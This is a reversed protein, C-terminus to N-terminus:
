RAPAMGGAEAVAVLGQRDGSRDFSVRGTLGLHSGAAVAARVSERATGGREIANLLTTAADYAYAGVAAPTDAYQDRYAEEYDARLGAAGQGLTVFITGELEAGASAVFRRDVLGLGTALLGKFGARRLERVASGTERPPGWLVIADAGRPSRTSGFGIRPDSLGALRTVVHGLAAGEREFAEAASRADYTDAVVMAVRTSGRRLIEPWLAAAQQRDNPVMRFFWPVFAASLTADSAWPSLMVVRRKAVVQEILHATEGDLGGIVGIVNDEFLLRVIEGTGEGWPGDIAREVLCVRRGRVGGARNAADVRLNVARRVATALPDKGAPLLLGIKIPLTDGAIDLRAGSCPSGQLATLVIAM